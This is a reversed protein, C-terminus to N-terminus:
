DKMREKYAAERKERHEACLTSIWGSGGVEGPAGCEECTVASMAEAMRVMGDVINDGGRYYFRLTGFKEKVQEVVVREVRPPVDQYKELAVAEEAERVAWEPAPKGDKTYRALMIEVKGTSIAKKLRRNFLLANLRQKRVWDIHHQISSCLSKIINFWGDGHSFGWCMCTHTMPMNRERFMYPYQECLMEDLEKKM